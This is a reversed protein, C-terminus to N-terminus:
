AGKHYAKSFVCIGIYKQGNLIILECMEALIKANSFKWDQIKGIKKNEMYVVHMFFNIAGYEAM